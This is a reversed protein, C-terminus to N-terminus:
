RGANGQVAFPIRYRDPGVTVDLVSGTAVVRPVEAGDALALGNPEVTFRRFAGDPHRIVLTQRGDQTAREVACAPALAAGSGLACAVHEPGEAVTPAKDGGSCAALALLGAVPLGRVVIM